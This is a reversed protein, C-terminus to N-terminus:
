HGDGSAGEAPYGIPIVAGIEFGNRVNVTEAIGSAAILPGTMYCAGLGISEAALLILMCVCSISKVHNDREWEAIDAGGDNLMFSVVAPARFVPIAILPANEFFTFSKAYTRFGDKFDEKIGSSMTEVGARVASAVQGITDADDIFLVDWYKKGSAYPSTLAIDRIRGIDEPSVRRNSFRRVSKRSGCLDHLAKYRDSSM